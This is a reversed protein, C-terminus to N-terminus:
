DGRLSAILPARLAARIAALGALLGVVLVVLLMPVLDRWPVSAGGTWGHPLVAVLAGILGTTMGGLLLLLHETLVLNALRRRSFGAARLLALEGRREVVSRVQVTALGFTGLLLGLAGLSQFTSLYTNQVALLDALIDRSRRVDLGQDGLRDELLAEVDAGRGAPTRVLFYRYGNVLPFRRVFEGEDILLAGQLVSNALLGVVRFRLTRDDDFPIDFEQGIGGYLHLGYMATNKDLIVPIPPEDGPGRPADADRRLLRWPNLRDEDREAASAAWAFSAAGPRDFEEILRSSVGLVRPQRAQYLNTCSADDGPRLRFPVINVNEFKAADDAFLDERVSPSNLDQLVPLSSQAVLEFGGSGAETPALRFASLAVILFVAAGMLGITVASRGPNRAANRAALATLGALPRMVDGSAQVQGASRLFSNVLILLAALTAFGAGVFAGAQAEGGLQTALGALVVAGVLAGVAARVSTLLGTWRASRAGSPSADAVFRGALLQRIPMRRTQRLSLWTVIRGIVMGSAAGIALSRWTVHLELLSTAVAGIWWTKLGTLLLWAYGTGIAIGAIGGVAAVVAGENSLQRNVGDPTWGTALLVGIENARQEIGLRFLLAVLLVAAAILFTSLSLFLADFPTTGSSAALSQRKIPQFELGLAVGRSRLESLLSRALSLEDLGSTAPVRLSTTQGFRSRWIKQGAELSIFAKPTTRHNAWYEDDAPKVRRSDYPFPPDWRSISEQDTIGEVTPTLDSDNAPSPRERFRAPEGLRFGEFPEVLPVISRLRFEATREVTEGHTTEPEFFKLRIRDGPRAGLEAATWANLIIEDDGLPPLPRGDDDLLPGLPAASDVACVTSYPVEARPKGSSSATATVSEKPEGGPPANAVVSISNALYTFVPQPAHDGWARSGAAVVANDLLLRDSSLQFYEFATQAEGSEPEYTRRVRSIKLGLDELAPSLLLNLARSDVAAPDYSQEHVLIANARGPVNLAEQLTSLALYANRPLHQSPHLSFRGLGTAPLIDIVKLQTLSRVTETKKGLASDAPVQNAKPIRLVVDDGIRVGLERALPENLLVEGEGPTRAPPRADAPGFTWFDAECGIALIESARETKGDHRAELTAQPLLIAAAPAAFQSAYRDRRTLRRALDTTFFRDTILLHDIRGLRDLTLARLSGRVSDGVLLAGTLVATAAAIGLAVALHIRRYHTLGRWVLHAPTVVIARGRVDNATPM